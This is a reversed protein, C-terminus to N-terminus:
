RYADVFRRLIIEPFRVDATRCMAILDDAEEPRFYGHDRYTRIRVEFVEGDAEPHFQTAYVNEGYRIMQFPCTPSALLHACGNPLEQVAEKHGVFANFNRPLGALLRDGAGDETVHCDAVGVAEGYMEKSVRAGIYHALIGIGYCCGMFPIDAETIAPMLALIAREVGKDVESKRDQPDSVCAPGGGVIVGAYDALTLGSVVPDQDLRIRNTESETLGGKDLFAEYENDSAETEPRLQLFLFPKM